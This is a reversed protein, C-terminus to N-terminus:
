RERNQMEQEGVHWLDQDLSSIKFLRYLRRLDLPYVGNQLKELVLMVKGILEAVPAELGRHDQNGDGQNLAEGVAEKELAMPEKREHKDEQRQMRERQHLGGVPIM